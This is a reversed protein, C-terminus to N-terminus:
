RSARQRDALREGSRCLGMRQLDPDADAVLSKLLRSSDVRGASTVSRCLSPDRVDGSSGRKVQKEPNMGLVKAGIALRQQQNRVFNGLQGAADQRVAAAPEPDMQLLLQQLDGGAARNAM